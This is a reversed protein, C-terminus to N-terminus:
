NEAAEQIEMLEILREEKTAINTELAGFETALKQLKGVDTTNNLSSELEQKRLALKELEQELSEMERAQKWTLKPKEVKAVPPASVPASAREQERRAEEQAQVRIRYDTYNGPIYRIEGGGEFVFLHNVLKDMFYRDHSVVLLCGKFDNLFDELITITLIDLDNTPEDLVLFNPNKMLLTLLYLRRKEGGSLTSVFSYQSAPPFLFRELLQSATLEVGKAMPLVEAVDKVVDLVRKDEPLKLGEQRYYGFVVTEGTEVRGGDAPMRGTVVELFTSKGTGNRGVIGLREGKSFTHSFGNLIPMDGFSKQLNELELIKGGLRKMQMEMDVQKEQVKAKAKVKLAEYAELRSKSKTGRAKPQKRVWEYEKLMLRRADETQKFENAERAAKLELFASYDGEYRYLQQQDLELIADCVSELFYRDHTVLLLTIHSGALYEELWEIMDLDLHNTPEDLILFDPQDILVRALAIRRRQGGSLVNVPQTLHDIKLRSLIQRARVEYDWAHLKDMRELAAQVREPHATDELAEEYARLAQMEPAPSDFLAESVTHNPNFNNDQFLIATRVDRNVTVQGSDPKELGALIRLLTSKGAGNRAVLAIKDGKNIAFQIDTFLVKENYAKSLNNVLLYNM